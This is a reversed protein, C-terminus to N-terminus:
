KRRRPPPELQQVYGWFEALKPLADAWWAADRYVRTVRIDGDVWQVYDCWKRDTVELQGHMQALHYAPPDDRFKVPCKAEVLGDHGVLADPSAALWDHAPHIVLGVEELWAGSGVAYKFLADQEHERGRRIHGNGEVKEIGVKIRWLKQRSCFPSLGLAAGFDSATLRKAREAHWEADGQRV